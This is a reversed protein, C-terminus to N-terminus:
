LQVDGSAKRRRAREMRIGQIKGAEWISTIATINAWDKDFGNQQSRRYEARQIATCLELGEFIFANEAIRIAEEPTVLIKAEKKM